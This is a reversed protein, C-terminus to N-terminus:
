FNTKGDPAISYVTSVMPIFLRNSELSRIMHDISAWPMEALQQRLKYILRDHGEASKLMQFMNDEREYQM